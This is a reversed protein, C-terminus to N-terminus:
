YTLTNLRLQDNNKKVDCLFGISTGVRTASLPVCVRARQPLMRFSVQLPLLNAM